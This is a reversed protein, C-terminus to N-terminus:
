RSILSDFTNDNNKIIYKVEDTADGLYTLDLGRCDKDTICRDKDYSSRKDLRRITGVRPLIAPKLCCASIKKPNYLNRLPSCIGCGKKAQYGFSPDNSIGIDNTEEMNVESNPNITATFSEQTNPFVTMGSWDFVIQFVWLMIVIIMIIAMIEAGDYM